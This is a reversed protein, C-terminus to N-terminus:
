QGGGAFNLNDGFPRNFGAPANFADNIGQMAGARVQSETSGDGGNVNINSITVSVSQNAGSVSPSTLPLDMDSYSGRFTADRDYAAAGQQHSQRLGGIADSWMKSVDFVGYTSQNLSQRWNDLDGVLWSFADKIAPGVQDMGTAQGLRAAIDQGSNFFSALDNLANLVGIAMDRLDMLATSMSQIQETFKSAPGIWDGILSPGGQLWTYVDQGILYLATMGAILLGIPSFFLSFALQAAKLAGILGAAGLAVGFIKVTNEAGGLANSFSVIANEIYGFATTIANAIFTVAGSARNFRNVMVDFRNEVVVIAQSITMPMQKFMNEFYGSMSMTAKIVQETTLVGQSALKKLEGRPKGLAKALQDLFQPAAEAMARFEDGQLTGSGLAQSFQLFASSQEQASAGGVVLAQALTTTVQELQESTKIYDQAANGIRTYVEAYAQISIRNESAKQAVKDFADAASGVTQPLMGIRSELSQMDDAAKAIAGLSFLGFAATIASGLNNFSNKLDDTSKDLRRIENNAPTAGSLGVRILLERINM